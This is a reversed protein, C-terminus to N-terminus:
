NFTQGQQIWESVNRTVPTILYWWCLNAQYVPLLQWKLINVAIDHSGIKGKLLISAFVM